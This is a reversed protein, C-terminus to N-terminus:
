PNHIGKPGEFVKKMDEMAKQLKPMITAMRKQTIGMTKQMLEPQKRIFKQGVPTRYFAIMGELEEKAFTDAYIDIYDEKLKDWGSENGIIDMIMGQMSSVKESDERSMKEPLRLNKVQDMQMQKMMGFTRELNKDVEMLLLLEESLQRRVEEQAHSFSLLAPVGVVILVCIKRIRIM